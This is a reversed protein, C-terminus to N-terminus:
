AAADRSWRPSRWLRRPVDACAYSVYSHLSHLSPRIAQRVRGLAIQARAERMTSRCVDLYAVRASQVHEESNTPDIMTKSRVRFYARRWHPATTSQTEDHRRWLLLPRDVFGIAGFRSVRLAMDWDDAPVAHTDFGGALEAVRRRILLTGTTLVWNECVLDAFRTPEDVPVDVLRGEHFGRRCRLKDELDDGPLPRGDVDICRALCHAAALSPDRDLVSVLTDLMQPEWVDDNDLYIVFESRPDTAAFGRNRAAAVGGNAGRVVRIRADDVAFRRAVEATSDTSGDDFVILEWLQHEQAQVSRITAGLLRESNYAPIVVSVRPPTTM